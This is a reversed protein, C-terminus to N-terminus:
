DLPKIHWCILKYKGSPHIVNMNFNHNVIAHCNVTKHNQYYYNWPYCEDISNKKMQFNQKANAIECRRVMLAIVCNYIWPSFSRFLTLRLNTKSYLSIWLSIMYLARRLTKALFNELFINVKDILGIGPPRKVDWELPSAIKCWGPNRLSYLHYFMSVQDPYASLYDTDSDTTM